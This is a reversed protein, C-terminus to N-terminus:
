VVAVVPRNEPGKRGCSGGVWYGQRETGWPRIKLWWAEQEVQASVVLIQERRSIVKSLVITLQQSKSWQVKDGLESGRTTLCVFKLEELLRSECRWKGKKGLDIKCTLMHSPWLRYASIGREKWQVPRGFRLAPHIWEVWYTASSRLCVVAYRHWLGEGEGPTACGDSVLSVVPRLFFLWGAPPLLTSPHLHGQLNYMCWQGLRTDM